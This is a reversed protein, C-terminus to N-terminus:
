TPIIGVKQDIVAKLDHLNAIHEATQEMIKGQKKSYSGIRFLSYDEANLYYKNKSRQAEDKFVNMIERTMDHENMAFMPMEYAAVKSDFMAFIDFDKQVQKDNKGFM